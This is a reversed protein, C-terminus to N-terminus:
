DHEARRLQDEDRAAYGGHVRWVGARIDAGSAPM